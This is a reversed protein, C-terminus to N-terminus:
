HENSCEYGLGHIRQKGEESGLYVDFNLVYGNSSDTAMWVKIGYKTPKAPMYQRFGLRGKFAIMGEDVAINKSPYYCMQINELVANLIPRVKYLRDYGVDGRAPTLTSDAFHLFQSIEQYRNRTMVRKIGENGLFPDDKWYDAVKPLVNVGMIVCIGFYSKMEPKTVDKWIASRRPNNAVSQRAYRNTEEVIRDLTAEGFVRLFFHDAKPEDGFGVLLGPQGSFESIHFNSLEFTWEEEDEEGESGSNEESEDESELREEQLGEEREVLPFGEYDLIPKVNPSLVSLIIDFDFIIAKQRQEVTLECSSLIELLVPSKQDKLIDLISQDYPFLCIRRETTKEPFSIHALVVNA